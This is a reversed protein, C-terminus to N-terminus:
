KQIEALDAAKKLDKDSIKVAAKDDVASIELKEAPISQTYTRFHNNLLEASAQRDIEYILRTNGNKVKCYMHDGPLTHFTVKDENIKQASLAFSGIEKVSLDTKVSETLTPLLDLVTKVDIDAASSKESIGVTDLIEEFKEMEVTVYHDVPLKFNGDVAKALGIVGGNPQSYISNIDNNGDTHYKDDVYCTRPIQLVNIKQDVMNYHAVLLVEALSSDEGEKELGCLLFNVTKEKLKEPTAFSKLTDGAEGGLNEDNAFPRSNTLSLAAIGLALFVILLVSLTILLVKKWTKIRNM